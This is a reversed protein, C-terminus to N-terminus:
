LLCLRRDRVNPNEENPKGNLTKGTVVTMRREQRKEIRAKEEEITNKIDENMLLRYWM